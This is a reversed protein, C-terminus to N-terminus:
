IYFKVFTLINKHSTRNRFNFFNFKINSIAKNSLNLFPKSLLEEPSLPPNEFMKEFKVLEKGLIFDGQRGILKLKKIGLLIPVKIFSLKVSCALLTYYM